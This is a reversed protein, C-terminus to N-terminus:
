VRRKDYMKRRRNFLVFNFGKKKNNGSPTIPKVGTLFEYWGEALGSRFKQVDESQDAPREYCLLFGVALWGVPESSKSFDEFSMDSYEGKGIWQVNNKVEYIIREVNPHMESYDNFGNERAWDIYKTAPTWQVLGYGMSTAGVIDSQWRGPNISSEAQMNGLLAAIANESWGNELLQSYIYRANVEMQSTSCPSSADLISGYYDGYLGSRKIVSM